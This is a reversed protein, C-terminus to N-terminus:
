PFRPTVRAHDLDDEDEPQREEAGRDERGDPVLADRRLDVDRDAEGRQEGGGREGRLDDQLAREQL